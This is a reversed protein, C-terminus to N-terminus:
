NGGGWSYASWLVGEFTYGVKVISIIKAEYFGSPPSSVSYQRTVTGDVDTLFDDTIIPNNYDRDKYIEISVSVGELSEGFDDSIAITVVLYNGSRTLNFIDVVITNEDGPEDDGNEDDGPEDDGIGLYSDSLEYRMSASSSFKYKNGSALVPFPVLTRTYAPIEVTIEKNERRLAPNPKIVIEERDVHVFPMLDVLEMIRDKAKVDAQEDPNLVALMRVAEKAASNVAIRGAFIVSGQVIGFVLLLFLPLVLSFEVLSQGKDKEKFIGM